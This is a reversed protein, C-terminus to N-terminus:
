INKGAFILKRRSFNSFNFFTAIKLYFINSNEKSFGFFRFKEIKEDFIETKSCFFHRFIPFQFIESKEPNKYSFDVLKQRFQRFIPFDAFKWNERYKKLYFISFSSFIVKKKFKQNKERFIRDIKLFQFTTAKKKLFISILRNKMSINPKKSKGYLFRSIKWNKM